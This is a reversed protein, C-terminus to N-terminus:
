VPPKSLQLLDPERRISRCTRLGLRNFQAWLVNADRGTMLLAREGRLADEPGTYTGSLM